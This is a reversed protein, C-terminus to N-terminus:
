HERHELIQVMKMERQLAKRLQEFSQQRFFAILLWSVSAYKAISLMGSLDIAGDEDDDDGEIIIDEGDM